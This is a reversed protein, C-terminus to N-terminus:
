EYDYLEKPITIKYKSHYVGKEVLQQKGSGLEPKSTDLLSYWHHDAKEAM